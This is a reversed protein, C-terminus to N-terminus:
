GNRVRKSHQWLRSILQATWEPNGDKWNMREVWKWEHHMQKVVALCM